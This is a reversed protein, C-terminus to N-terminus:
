DAFSLSSLLMFTIVLSATIARGAIAAPAIIAAGAADAAGAAGATWDAATAPATTGAAVDLQGAPYRQKQTL